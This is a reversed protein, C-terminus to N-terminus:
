ANPMQCFRVENTNENDFLEIVDVYMPYLDTDLGEIRIIDNDNFDATVERLEGITNIRDGIKVNPKSLADLVKMM